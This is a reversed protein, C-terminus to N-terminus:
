KFLIYLKDFCQKCFTIIKLPRGDFILRDIFLAPGGSLNLRFCNGLFIPLLFSGRVKAVYFRFRFSPKETFFCILISLCKVGDHYRKMQYNIIFPM